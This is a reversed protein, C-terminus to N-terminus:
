LPSVEPVQFPLSQSLASALSQASEPFGPGSLSCRLSAGAPYPSGLDTPRLGFQARGLVHLPCEPTCLM